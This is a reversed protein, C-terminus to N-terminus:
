CCSRWRRCYSITFQKINNNMDNERRNVLTELAELQLMDRIRVLKLSDTYSLSLNGYINRLRDLSRVFLKYRQDYMKGLQERTAFVVKNKALEIFAKFQFTSLALGGIASSLNDFIAQIVEMEYSDCYCCEDRTESLYDKFWEPFEDIYAKFKEDFDVRTDISGISLTGEMLFLYHLTTIITYFLTSSGTTDIRSPNYSNCGGNAQGQYSGIKWDGANFLESIAEYFMYESGANIAANNQPSVDQDFFDYGNLARTTHNPSGAAIAGNSKLLHQKLTKIMFQSTNTSAVNQYYKAVSDMASIYVIMKLDKMFKHNYIYTAIEPINLTTLLNGVIQKYIEQRTYYQEPVIMGDAITTFPYMSQSQYMHPNERYVVDKAYDLIIRYFRDYVENKDFHSEMIVKFTGLDRASSFMDVNAHKDFSPYCMTYPVTSGYWYNEVINGKGPNWEMAFRSVLDFGYGLRADRLPRHIEGDPGHMDFSEGCVAYCRHDDDDGYMVKNNIKEIICKEKSRQTNIFYEHEIEENGPISTESFDIWKHDMSAWNKYNTTVGPIYIDYKELKHRVDLMLFHTFKEDNVYENDIDEIVRNYLAINEKIFM